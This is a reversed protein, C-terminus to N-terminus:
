IGFPNYTNEKYTSQTLDNMLNGTEVKQTPINNVETPTSALSVIGSIDSSSINSIGSQGIMMAAQAGQIVKGALQKNKIVMNGYSNILQAQEQANANRAQQNVESINQDYQGITKQKAAAGQKIIDDVSRQVSAGATIGEGRRVVEKSIAKTEQVQVERIDAAKEQEIQSQIESARISNNTQAFKTLTEQAKYQAINFEAEAVVANNQAKMQQYTSYMNFISQGALIYPNM